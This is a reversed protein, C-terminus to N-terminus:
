GDPTEGAFRQALDGATTWPGARWFGVALSAAARRAPQLLDYDHTYTMAYRLSSTVVPPASTRAVAMVTATTPLLVLGDEVRPATWGDGAAAEPNGYGLAFSRVSADARFASSAM